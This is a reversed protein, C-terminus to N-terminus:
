TKTTRETTLLADILLDIDDWTCPELVWIEPRILWWLTHLRDVYPQIPADAEGASTNAESIRRAEQVDLKLKTLGDIIASEVM